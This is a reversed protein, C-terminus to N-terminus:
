PMGGREPQPPETVRGDFAEADSAAAHLDERDPADRERGHGRQVGGRSAGRDRVERDPAEGDPPTADGSRLGLAEGDVVIERRKPAFVRVVSRVVPVDIEGSDGRVLLVEAGGARYVDVVEGLATGDVDSVASGLVDHWYYEGRPLRAAPGVVAELYVNRLTEAASRDSVEAFHLRWGSSDSEAETVTLPSDSGEAYLRAGAAFREAARDSLAEVRVEGRVGHPARVLGVVLREDASVIRGGLVSALALLAAPAM